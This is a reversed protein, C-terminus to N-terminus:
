RLVRSMAFDFCRFPLIAVRLFVTELFTWTLFVTAFFAFRACGLSLVSRLTTSRLVLAVTVTSPQISRIRSSDGRASLLPLGLPAQMTASGAPPADSQTKVSRSVQLAIRPVNRPPGHQFSVALKMSVSDSSKM